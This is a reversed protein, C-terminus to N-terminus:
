TLAVTGTKTTGDSYKVAVKLNNGSEDLYFSITSNNALTPASNPAGQTVYGNDDLELYNVSNVGFQMVATGSTSSADFAVTTDGGGVSNAAVTINADGTSMNYCVSYLQAPISTASYAVSTLMKDGVISNFSGSGGTLYLNATTWLSSPAANNAITMSHPKNTSNNNIILLAQSNVSDPITIDLAQETGDIVISSGGDYADQMDAVGGSGTAIDVWAGNARLRLKDTDTKYYLHGDDATAPDAAASGVLFGARGNVVTLGPTAQDATYLTIDGSNNITLFYDDQTGLRLIGATGGLANISTTGTGGIANTGFFMTADGTGLQFAGYQADATTTGANYAGFLATGAGTGLISKFNASGSMLIAAAEIISEQSANNVIEVCNPDAVPASNVIKLGAVAESSPITITLPNDDISIGYGGDYATQLSTAVGSLFNERTIRVYQTASDDYMLLLDAAEVVSGSTSVFSTVGGSSLAIAGSVAQSEWSDGDAILLNGATATSSGVDSLESLQTAGGAGLTIWASNARLRLVDSSTNYYLHGDTPTSPDSTGSGVLLGAKGYVVTLGPTTGDDTYAIVNGTSELAFRRELATQGTRVTEVLLRTGNQSGSWAEGAQAVIQVGCALGSDWATTTTGCFNIYGLSHDNAIAAPSAITGGAKFFGVGGSHWNTSSAVALGLNVAYNENTLQLPYGMTTGTFLASSAAGMVMAYNTADWSAANAAGFTSGDVRYQIETGTGAPSGGGVGALFNARTMRRYAAESTDYILVLDDSAILAEATAIFATAGTSSLTIAGSISQSDWDSGDAILLNGSTATSSGVDSLDSLQSAGGSGLGVWSGNEGFKWENATTDYFQAGNVVSGPNGARTPVTFHFNTADLKAIQSSSEGAGYWVHDSNGFIRYRTERDDDGTNRTQFLLEAGKNGSSWTQTAEAHISAGVSLNGSWGSGTVGAFLVQGLWDGSATSLPTALDGQTHIMWITPAAGGTGSTTIISMAPQNTENAIMFDHFSSQIVNSTADGVVLTNYTSDWHAQAAGGFTTADSRFQIESGSGGPSGGGGGGGADYAQSLANILSVKGVKGELTDWEAASASLLFNGTAWNTSNARFEDNLIIQNDSTLALNQSNKSFISTAGAYTFVAMINTANKIQFGLNSSGGNLQNYTLQIDERSNLGIGANQSQLLINGVGSTNVRFYDDTDPDVEVGTGPTVSINIAGNAGIRTSATTGQSTLTTTAAGGLAVSSYTSQATGTGAVAGATFTTNSGFSGVTLTDMGLVSNFASGALMISPAEWPQSPSAYNMVVLSAPKGTIDNNTILFAPAGVGNPITVDIPGGTGPGVSAAISIRTDGDYAGQLNTVGGGGGSGLEITTGTDDTYKLAFGPGGSNDVWLTPEGAGGPNSARGTPDFQIGGVDQIPSNDINLKAQLAEVATALTNPHNAIVEDTNDVLKPTLTDLSTPYNIPNWSTTM